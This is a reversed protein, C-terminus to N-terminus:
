SYNKNRKLDEYVLSQPLTTKSRLSCASQSDSSPLNELAAEAICPCSTPSHILTRGGTWLRNFPSKRVRDSPLLLLPPEFSSPHSLPLAGSQLYTTRPKFGAGGWCVAFETLGSTPLWWPHCLVTHHGRLPPLPVWYVCFGRFIHIPFFLLCYSSYSGYSHLFILHPDTYSSQPCNVTMNIDLYTYESIHKLRVSPYALAYYKLWILSIVTLWILTLDPFQSLPTLTISWLFSSPDWSIVPVGHPSWQGSFYPM